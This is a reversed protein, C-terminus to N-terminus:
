HFPTVQSRPMTVRKAHLEMDKCPVTSRVRTGRKTVPMSKEEFLKFPVTLTKGFLKGLVSVDKVRAAFENVPSTLWIRVLRGGAIVLTASFLLKNVPVGFRDM